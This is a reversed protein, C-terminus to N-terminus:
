YLHYRGFVQGFFETSLTFSVDQCVSSSSNTAERPLCPEIIDRQNQPNQSSYFTSVTPVSFDPLLLLQLLLYDWIFMQRFALQSHWNNRIITSESVSDLLWNIPATFTNYEVVIEYRAVSSLCISDIQHHRQDPVLTKPGLHRFVTGNIPVCNLDLTVPDLSYIRLTVGDVQTTTKLTHMNSFFCLSRKTM